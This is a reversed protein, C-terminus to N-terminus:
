LRDEASHLWDQRGFATLLFRLTKAEKHHRFVITIKHDHGGHRLICGDLAGELPTGSQPNALIPKVLGDIEEARQQAPPANGSIESVHVIISKSDSDFLPQFDPLTM